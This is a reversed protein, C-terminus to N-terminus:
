DLPKRDSRFTARLAAVDVEPLHREVLDFTEEILDHLTQAGEPAPRGFVARLRAPLSPPALPLDLADLRKFALVHGSYRGNLAYLVSLLQNTMRVFERAVLLPNDREFFMQWRWFKEINGNYRVVALALDRPYTAVRGQWRAVLEARPGIVERGDIIGQALQMVQGDPKGSLLEDLSNEVTQTLTHAVEVLLGDPRPEGLYLHDDWPPGDVNVLRVDAAGAVALREAETPPRQWFVGVEIDSWRDADGRATSGGLMVADVGDVAAYWDMVPRVMVRRRQAAETVM